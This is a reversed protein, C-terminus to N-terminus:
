GVADVRAILMADAAWDVGSGGPVATVQHHDITDM